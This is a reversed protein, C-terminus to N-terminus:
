DGNILLNWITKFILSPYSTIFTNIINLRGLIEWILCFLIGILVQFVKIKLKNMKYKKIFLLQEKSMAM